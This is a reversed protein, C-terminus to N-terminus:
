GKFIEAVKPGAFLALLIMTAMPLYKELFDHIFTMDGRYLQTVLPVVFLLVVLGSGLNLARMRFKHNREGASNMAQLKNDSDHSLFETIHRTVEPNQQQLGVGMQLALVQGAQQPQLLPTGPPLGGAPLVLRQQEDADSPKNTQDPSASTGDAKKGEDPTM